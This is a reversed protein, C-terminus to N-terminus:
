KNEVIWIDFYSKDESAMSCDLVFYEKTIKKIDILAGNTSVISISPSSTFKPLPKNNVTLIDKFYFKKEGSGAILFLDKVIFINNKLIDKNSLDKYIDQLNGIDKKNKDLTLKLSSIEKLIGAYDQVIRDKKVDLINYLSDHKGFEIKIEKSIKDDFKDITSYGYFTIVALIIAFVTTILQIRYKLEFYLDKDEIKRGIRISKKLTYFLVINWISM